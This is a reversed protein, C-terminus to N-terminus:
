ATRLYAPSFVKISDHIAGFFITGNFYAPTSFIGGALVDDIQQYFNNANRSFKGLNDRDVVYIKRDKGAGM